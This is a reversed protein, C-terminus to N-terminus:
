NKNNTSINRKSKSEERQKKIAEKRKQCRMSLTRHNGRCNICIEGEKTCDKWTHGEEACESYIKYDRNKSCDKTLHTEIEYCKFCTQILYFKEQQIQYHPIKVSFLKLGNEISKQAFIAQTFTIKITKSNPFKFVTDINNDLWTNHAYLENKM